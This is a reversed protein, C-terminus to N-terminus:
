TKKEALFTGHKSGLFGASVNEVDMVSGHGHICGVVPVWPFPINEDFSYFDVM